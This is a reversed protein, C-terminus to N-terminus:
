PRPLAFVHISEAHGDDGELRDSVFALTDDDIWAVGEVSPYAIRSGTRPFRYVQGEDVQWETPSLRGVWLLSSEQSTVALRDGRIDLGSYDSFKASEPLRITTHHSWRGGSRRQFVKIRGHGTSFRTSSPAAAFM